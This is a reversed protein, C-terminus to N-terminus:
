VSRNIRAHKSLCDQKNTRSHKVANVNLEIDGWVIENVLDFIVYELYVTAEKFERVEVTIKVTIWCSVAKICYM